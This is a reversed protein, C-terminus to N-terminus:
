GAGSPGLPRLAGLACRLGEHQGALRQLSVAAGRGLFLGLGLGSLQCAGEGCRPRGGEYFRGKSPVAASQQGALREGAVAVTIGLGGGFRLGHDRIFLHDLFGLGGGGLSFGRAGIFRDAHVLLQHFLIQGPRAKDGFGALEFFFLFVLVLFFFLGVASLRLVVGAGRVVNIRQRRAAEAQEAQTALLLLFLFLRM